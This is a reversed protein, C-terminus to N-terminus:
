KKARSEGIIPEAKREEHCNILLGTCISHRSICQCINIPKINMESCWRIKKIWPTNFRSLRPLVCLSLLIPAKRNLTEIGYFVSIGDCLISVLAQRWLTQYYVSVKLESVWTTYIRESYFYSLHSLTLWVPMKQYCAPLQYFTWPLLKM